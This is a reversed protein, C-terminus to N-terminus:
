PTSELNLSQTQSAILNTIVVLRSVIYLLISGYIILLFPIAVDPLIGTRLSVGYCFGFINMFISAITLQKLVKPVSAKDKSKVLPPITRIFYLIANVINLLAVMISLPLVLIDLIMMSIIGAVSMLIGVIVVLNVRKFPGIPTSGLAITQVAFLLMLLGLQASSTINLPILVAAIILLGLIIMYLSVLTLVIVDFGTKQAPEPYKVSTKHRVITFWVLLIGFLLAIASKVLLPLSEEFFLAVAFIINGIYVSACLIGLRSLLKDGSKKWAPYYNKSAFLRILLVIGSVGVFFVTTLKPILEPISDTFSLILGLTSVVIGFIIVFRSQKVDGVPTKGLSSIQLGFLFLLVGYLGYPTYTIIGTPLIPLAIGLLLMTIAFLMLIVSEIGLRSESLLWFM